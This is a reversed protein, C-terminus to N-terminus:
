KVRPVANQFDTVAAWMASIASSANVTPNDRVFNEASRIASAAKPRAVQAAQVVARRNKCLPGAVPDAMLAAYPRAWCYERYDVVLQLAAAYANKARYIDTQSVPNTITTTAIRAVDGIQACGAVALSVAVIAATLFRKM